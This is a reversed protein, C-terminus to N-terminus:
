PGRTGYARGPTRIVRYRKHGKGTRQGAMCSRGREDAVAAPSTEHCLFLPPGAIPAKKKQIYAFVKILLEPILAYTGTKTTGIVNMVPVEVLTIETMVYWVIKM